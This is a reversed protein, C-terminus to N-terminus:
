GIVGAMNPQAAQYNDNIPKYKDQGTQISDLGPGSTEGMYVCGAESLPVRSFKAHNIIQSTM